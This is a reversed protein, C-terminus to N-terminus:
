LIYKRINDEAYNEGSLYVLEGNRKLGIWRVGAGGFLPRDDIHLYPTGENPYIGIASFGFQEAKMLHFLASKGPMVLDVCKCPNVYHQSKEVHGTGESYDSTIKIPCGVFDRFSDLKKLFWLDMKDPFKFETEKFNRITWVM